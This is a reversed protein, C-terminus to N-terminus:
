MCVCEAVSYAGINQTTTKDPCKQCMNQQYQTRYYGLTCPICDTKDTALELGSNCYDSILV